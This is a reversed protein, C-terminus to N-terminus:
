SPPATFHPYACLACVGVSGMRTLMTTLWVTFGYCRAASIGEGPASANQNFQVPICSALSLGHIPRTM